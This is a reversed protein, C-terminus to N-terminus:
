QGTKWASAPRNKLRKKPFRISFIILWLNGFNWFLQGGPLCKERTLVNEFLSQRGPSKSSLSCPHTQSDPSLRASCLLHLSTGVQGFMDCRRRKKCLLNNNNAKALSCLNPSPLVVLVHSGTLTVPWGSSSDAVLQVGRCVCVSQTVRGICLCCCCHVQHVIPNKVQTSATNWNFGNGYDIFREPLDWNGNFHIRTTSTTQGDMWTTALRM